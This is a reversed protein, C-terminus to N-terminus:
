TPDAGTPQHGFVDRHAKLGDPDPLYHGGCRHCLQTTPGPQCAEAPQSPQAAGGPEPKGGRRRPPPRTM